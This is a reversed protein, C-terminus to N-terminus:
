QNYQLHASILKAIPVCGYDDVPTMEDPLVERTEYLWWVDTDTDTDLETAFFM